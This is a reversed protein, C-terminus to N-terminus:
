DPLSRNIATLGFIMAIIGARRAELSASDSVVDDKLIVIYRNPIPNKKGKLFKGGPTPPDQQQATQSTTTLPFVLLAVTLLLVSYKLRLM